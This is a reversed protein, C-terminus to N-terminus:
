RGTKRRPLAFRGPRALLPLRSAAQHWLRDVEPLRLLSAAVLYGAGLVAVAFGFFLLQGLRPAVGPVTAATIRPALLAALLAM